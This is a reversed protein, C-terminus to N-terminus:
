ETITVGGGPTDKDTLNLSVKGTELLIEEGTNKVKKKPAKKVKKKAQQTRAM